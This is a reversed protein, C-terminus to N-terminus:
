IKPSPVTSHSIFESSFDSIIQLAHSQEQNHYDFAIAVLTAGPSGKITAITENWKSRRKDASFHGDNVYWYAILRSRKTDRRLRILNVKNLVPNQKITLIEQGASVWRNENFLSNEVFIMEKGQHQRVYNALYVQILMEGQSFYFFQESSAGTSTPSWNPSAANVQGLQKYSSIAPLTFQYDSDFRSSIYLFASTFFLVIASVLLLYRTNLVPQANQEVSQTSNDVAPENFNAQGILILPFIGAAFVFWGFTLHDQVIFHQMHTQSGVIIIVTIRIWNAIIAISVALILFGLGAKYTLNNFQTVFAAYLASVLFFGLGSCAEEVSFIGGPTILRYGERIIEFGLLNVSHFSVTTSIDRLPLQLVNWIPLTLALILLPLFLTKIIKYGYVSTLLATIILFVSLQQLQGISALNAAFLLLCSCIVFLLTVPNFSYRRFIDRKLWFCYMSLGFGLLGHNYPGVSWWEATLESVVSPNAALVLVINFAFFSTLKKRDSFVM